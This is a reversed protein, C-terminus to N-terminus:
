IAEHGSNASEPKELLRRLKLRANQLASRVGDTTLNLQQAIERYSLRRGYFLAIAQRQNESLKQLAMQLKAEIQEADRNYLSFFAENQVIRPWSKKWKKEIERKKAEDRHYDYALNHCLRYLFAPLNDISGDNQLHEFLRVFVDQALDNVVEPEDIYRRIVMLVRLRHRQIIATWAYEVRNGGVIQAILESDTPQPDFAM